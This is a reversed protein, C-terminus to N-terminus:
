TEPLSFLLLFFFEGIEDKKKKKFSLFSFFLETRTSRRQKCITHKMCNNAKEEKKEDKNRM